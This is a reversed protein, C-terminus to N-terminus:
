GREGRSDASETTSMAADVAADLSDGWIIRSDLMRSAIVRSGYITPTNDPAENSRNRLWRYRAADRADEGEQGPFALPVEGAGDIYVSSGDESLPVMFRDKGEQAGSAYSPWPLVDKHVLKAQSLNDLIKEAEPTDFKGLDSLLSGVVQYAEACVQEAERPEQPLPSAVVEPEFAPNIGADELVLEPHVDEYGEPRKLRVLVHAPEGVPDSASPSLARRNWAAIADERSPSYSGESGCDMCTAKATGFGCLALSAAGGCFPCNSLDPKLENGM